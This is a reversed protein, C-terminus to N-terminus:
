DRGIVQYPVKEAAFLIHGRKLLPNTLLKCRAASPHTRRVLINRHLLFLPRRRNVQEQPVANDAVAMESGRRARRLGSAAIPRTKTSKKAIHATKAGQSAGYSGACMSRAVRRAVGESRCIQPESSSPRSM